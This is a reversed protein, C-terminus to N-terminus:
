DGTWNKMVQSKNIKGLAIDPTEYNAPEDSVRCSNIYADDWFVFSQHRFGGGGRNKDGVRVGGDYEIGVYGSGKMKTIFEDINDTFITYGSHTGNWVHDLSPNKGEGGEITGRWAYDIGTTRFAIVWDDFSLYEGKANRMDLTGMGVSAHVFSRVVELEKEGMPRDGHFVSQCYKQPIEFKSLSGSHSPEVVSWKGSTDRFVRPSKTKYIAKAKKLYVGMEDLVKSRFDIQFQDQEVKYDEGWRQERTMAHTYNHWYNLAETKMDERKQVWGLEREMIKMLYERIAAVQSEAERVLVTGAGGKVTYDLAIEPNDTLYIGVGFLLGISNRTHDTSFAEVKSADGRYLTRMQESELLFESLLM